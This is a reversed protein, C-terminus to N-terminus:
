SPKKPTAGFLIEDWSPVAARGTNRAPDRAPQESRTPQETRAPQQRAPERAEIRAPESRDASPRTTPQQRKPRRATRRSGRDEPVPPSAPATTRGSERDLAPRRRNDSQARALQRRDGPDLRDDVEDNDPRDDGDFVGPSEFSASDVGSEGSAVASLHSPRGAGTAREPEFGLLWGAHEDDAVVIRAAVDFAFRGRVTTEGRAYAAEVDWRGDERRWADWVLTSVDVGREELRAAVVDGLNDGSSELSGGRFGATQAQRAVHAREDLVPAAFRRVREPDIGYATAIEAVSAGARVRSQIDRPRLEGTEIQLQGLRPRDGRVAATLAEDVDLVFREGDTDRLILRAGDDSVTLLHLPRPPESM